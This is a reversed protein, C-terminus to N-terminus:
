INNLLTKIDELLIISSSKSIFKPTLCKIQFYINRLHMKANKDKSNNTLWRVTKIEGKILHFIKNSIQKQSYFGNLDKLLTDFTVIRYITPNSSFTINFSDQTDGFLVGSKILKKVNADKDYTYFNLDYQGPNGSLNVKYIGERPTPLQFVSISGSTNQSADADDVLGEEIFTHGLIENGANDFVQLSYKPDITLMIYSLDTHTPRFTNMALYTNGYSDLTVRESFAPDNIGFSSILQSKAVVYHGQEKLIPPSGNKLETILDNQNNGFRRYELAPTDTTKNLNSFRSLALWNVLGNGLYGDTQSKLWENLNKPNTNFGYFNLVMSASTLACGWRSLYPYGSWRNASDYIDSAWMSNLQSIYPVNLNPLPPVTPISTVVVNDFWVESPFVAGTTILLAIKGSLIANVSNDTYDIIPSTSPSENLNYSYIKINNDKLIIRFHRIVNNNWSVPVRLIDPNNVLGPTWKQLDIWDPSMHLAYGTPLDLNSIRSRENGVRFFLNRDWGQIPLMDISFEYNNWSSSGVQVEATNSQGNLVLGFRNSSQINQLSWIGKVTFWQDSKGSEFNDSFLVSQASITKPFIIFLLCLFNILFIIYKKNVM